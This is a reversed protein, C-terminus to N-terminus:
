RDQDLLSKVSVALSARSYLLGLGCVCLGVLLMAAAMWLPRPTYTMSFQSQYILLGALWTGSVAGVGAIGAVTLWDYLALRLCGRRTVGMSQLLGNKQRDESEFGQMSAAIVLATMVLVMAAFGVVIKTVLALTDDFRRTIEKLPVLSLTPTDRWLDGLNDWAADPLEASGMYFTRPALEAHARDPMQFWFTVSGGGPKYAHEAVLELEVEDGDIAFALRDGFKLGLDAIVESEASVQQWSTDEDSWWRGAVLSNNDPVERSWSMRLSEGVVALTESPSTVAEAVPKGNIGVLKASAYPRMQRIEAHNAASWDEFSALEEAPLEAVMLNGNNARSYSEMTSGIDKMLMLTFLLLLSCLGLGLIQSSKSAIRQKMIFFSFSLLGTRNRGLREGITLVAWSLLIMLVLAACLAGLTLLTLTVNDSYYAALVTISAAGWFMRLWRASPYEVSRILSVLSARRLQLLMPLQFALLLLAILVFTKAMVLPHARAAIGSFQDALQDVLIGQAVMALAAGVLLSLLFGILWQFAALRLCQAMSQGFSLYISLRQTQRKLYRRNAMDIAIAALFFLIVSALGLFNEIRQWFLALPHGGGTKTVVTFDGLKEATWEEILAQRDGDAAILVRHVIRSSERDVLSLSAEGVLARMAVSHGEALRDPEHYLVASLTLADEGITVRDGIEVGLAKVARPGLWIEGQAPGRTTKQLSTQDLGTGIELEGQLPYNEDAIKVQVPVTEAGHSVALPVMRVEALDDAWGAVQQLDDDELARPGSLSMDAGLMQDLNDDLYAQVSAGTLALTTLFFVLATQIALVLRGDSSRADSLANEFATRLWSM